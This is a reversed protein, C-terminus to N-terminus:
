IPNVYSTVFQRRDVIRLSQRPSRELLTILKDHAILPPISHSSTRERYLPDNVKEKGERANWVAGHERKNNRM